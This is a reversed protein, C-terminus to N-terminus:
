TMGFSPKFNAMDNSTMVSQLTMKMNNAPLVTSDFLRKRITRKRFDGFIPDEEILSMNIEPRIM